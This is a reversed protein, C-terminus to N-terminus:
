DGGEARAKEADKVLFAHAKEWFAQDKPPRAWRQVQLGNGGLPFCGCREFGTLMASLNLSKDSPHDGPVRTVWCAQVFPWFALYTFAGGIVVAGPNRRALEVRNSGRTFRVVERGPLNAPLVTRGGVIVTRGWTIARFWVLDDPEHWPLRGELGIGGAADIALVADLSPTM